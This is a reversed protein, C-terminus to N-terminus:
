KQLFFGGRFRHIVCGNDCCQTKNSQYPQLLICGLFFALLGYHLTYPGVFQQSGVSDLYLHTIHTLECILM